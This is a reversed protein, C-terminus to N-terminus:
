RIADSAVLAKYKTHEWPHTTCWMFKWRPDAGAKQAQATASYSHAIFKRFKAGQGGPGAYNKVEFYVPAQVNHDVDFHRGVMDFRHWDGTLLQLWTQTPVEYVTFDIEFRTTAELWRKANAVGQEGAVHAAEGAM